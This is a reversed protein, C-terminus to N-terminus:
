RGPRGSLRTIVFTDGARAYALVMDLEPRSALEGSAKGIFIKV